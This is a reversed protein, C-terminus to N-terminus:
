GERQDPGGMIRDRRARDLRIMSDEITAEVDSTMTEIQAKVDQRFGAGESDLRDLQDKLLGYRRELEVLEGADEIQAPKTIHVTQQRLKAIRAALSALRGELEPHLNTDSSM